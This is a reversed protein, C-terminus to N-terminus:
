KVIVKKGNKVVIGKQAKTVRQGNLNFMASGQEDANISSIGTGDGITVNFPIEDFTVSEGSKPTLKANLIKGAGTQADAAATVNIDLIAGDTDFYSANSGSYSIITYTSGNKKASVIHDDMRDENLVVDPRQKKNLAIEVGEPFQLDFQFACFANDPNTLNVSIAKTEGPAITFDDIFFKVTGQAMAGVSMLMCVAAFFIKKM